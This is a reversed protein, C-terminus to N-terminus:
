WGLFFGSNIVMLGSFHNKLDVGNEPRMHRFSWKRHWKAAGTFGSWLSPFHRGAGSTSGTTICHHGLESDRETPPWIVGIESHNIISVTVVTYRYNSVPKYVLTWMVPPAGGQVEFLCRQPGQEWTLLTWSQSVLIPDICRRKSFDAVLWKCFFGRTKTFNGM